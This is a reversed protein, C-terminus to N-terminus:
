SDVLLVLKIGLSSYSKYHSNVQKKQLSSKGVADM